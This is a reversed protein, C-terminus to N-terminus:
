GDADDTDSEGHRLSTDEHAQVGVMFVYVAVWVMANMRKVFIAPVLRKSWEDGIGDRRCQERRVDQEYGDCGIGREVIKCSPRLHLANVCLFSATALFYIMVNKTMSVM